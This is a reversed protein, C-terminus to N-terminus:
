KLRSKLKSVKYVQMKDNFGKFAMLGKGEVEINDQICAQNYTDETILIEEAVASSCLRSALNVNSGIVTYNLRNKAGMNGAFVPGTQIGIGVHIPPLNDEVREKNWEKLIEIMELASIIANLPSKECAIPVGYLAMMGDGMYKDIVGHNRDVAGTLKTMCKNLFSIVEQPPMDQTLNTFGRIDAFLVTVIREEGGLKIDGKLIEQAIEESVVKNLIATVKEKQKLGTVMEDFSDCLQKIENKNKFEVKPMQILDWEGKRVHQLAISLATIPRTIKTSICFILFLLFSLAFWALVKAQIITKKSGEQFNKLFGEYSGIENQVASLFFFHLDLNPDPQVRFFNYSEGLVQLNGMLSTGEENLIPEIISLPLDVSGDPTKSMLIKKGRVVFGHWHFAAVAGELITNLDFGLTLLSRKKEKGEGSFIAATNVLFVRNNEPSKVISSGSSVFSGVNPPNELFFAEDDFIPSSYGLIPQLFFITNEKQFESSFTMADPWGEAFAGMQQLLSAEWIVFLESSYEIRQDLHSQVKKKFTVAATKDEIESVSVSEDFSPVQLNPMQAFTIARALLALFQSEDVDVLQTLQMSSAPPVFDKAEKSLNFTRLKELSYLVYITTPVESAPLDREEESSNLDKVPVRLGIFPTPYYNSGLVHVWSLGEEIPQTGVQFFPGKGPIILSLLKSEATNQLFQIWEDQQILGAANSWTGKQMHEQSPAFWEGLLKFNSIADLVSNVQALQRALSDVIVGEIDERQTELTEDYLKHVGQYLADIRGRVLHAEFFFTCYLVVAVTVGIVLILYYRLRM